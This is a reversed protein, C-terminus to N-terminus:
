QMVIYLYKENFMAMFQFYKKKLFYEAMRIVNNMQPYTEKDLAKHFISSHLGVIYVSRRM